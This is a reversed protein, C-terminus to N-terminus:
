GIRKQLFLQYPGLPSVKCSACLITCKHPANLHCNLSSHLSQELMIPLNFNKNQKCQRLVGLRFVNCYVCQIM